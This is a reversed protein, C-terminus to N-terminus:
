PLLGERISLVTNQSQHICPGHIAGTVSWVEVSNGNVNVSNGNVNLCKDWRAVL